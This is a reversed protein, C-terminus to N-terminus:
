RADHGFVAGDACLFLASFTQSRGKNPCRGKTRRDGEAGLQARRCWGDSPKIATLCVSCPAHDVLSCGRLWWQKRVNGGRGFDSHTMLESPDRHAPRGGVARRLSLM